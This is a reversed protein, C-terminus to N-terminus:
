LVYGRKWLMKKSQAVGRPDQLQWGLADAARTFVGFCMCVWVADRLADKSVGALLADRADSAAVADPDVCLKQLFALTARLPEAIPATRFDALVARM